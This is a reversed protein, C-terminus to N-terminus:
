NAYATAPTYGSTPAILGRSCNDRLLAMLGPMETEAIAIERRGRDAPAIDAVVRYDTFAPM